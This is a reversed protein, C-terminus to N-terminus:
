ANEEGGYYAKAEEEQAMEMQRAAEHEEMQQEQLDYMGRGEDEINFDEIQTQLLGIRVYLFMCYNAIHVLEDMAENPCGRFSDRAKEAHEEIKGM